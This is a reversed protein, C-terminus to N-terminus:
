EHKEAGNKIKESIAKKIKEKEGLFKRKLRQYHDPSILSTISQYSKIVWPALISESILPTGTSIFFTLLIIVVYSIVIGKCMAIFAGLTKDLWGLFAKKFLVKLAWGILNCSILICSFILGFSVIILLQNGITSLYPRLFDAVQPHFLNGIWFGLIIGALSSIERIFGRMIGKILLYIMVIIIIYDLLNM